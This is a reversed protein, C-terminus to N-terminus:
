FIKVLNGNTEKLIKGIKICLAIGNSKGDSKKTKKVPSSWHSPKFVYNKILCNYNDFNDVVLLSPLDAQILSLIALSCNHVHVIFKTITDVM